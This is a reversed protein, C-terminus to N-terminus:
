SSLAEGVGVRLPQPGGRALLRAALRARGLVDGVVGGEGPPPHHGLVGDAPHADELRHRLGVAVVPAAVGAPHARHTAQDVPLQVVQM